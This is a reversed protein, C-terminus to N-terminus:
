DEKTCILQPWLLITQQRSASLNTMKKIKREERYKGEREGEKMKKARTGRSM